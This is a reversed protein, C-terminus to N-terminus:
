VCTGGREVEFGREWGSSAVLESGCADIGYDDDRCVRVVGGCGTFDDSSHVAM